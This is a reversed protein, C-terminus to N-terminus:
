EIEKYTIYRLIQPKSTANKVGLSVTKNADDKTITAIVDTANVLYVNNEIVVKDAAVSDAISSNFSCVIAQLKTYDYYNLNDTFPITLESNAPVVRVGATTHYTPIFKEGTVVGTETGATKGERIDNPTATFVTKEGVLVAPIERGDEMQLVVSKPTVPNGGIINGVRM